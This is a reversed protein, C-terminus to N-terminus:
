RGRWVPARKELFARRGEQTDESQAIMSAAWGENQLKQSLGQHFQDNVLRKTLEITMSPGKALREALALAEPMLENPEVMRNALGWREADRAYIVEGTLMMELARSPGILRPLHFTTGTDPVLGRRIFVSCFGAETSVIRIDAALALSLGGGAAIGNVAAIYPKRYDGLQGFLRGYHQFPEEAVWRYGVRERYEAPDETPSLDAGACFGRGAGTIVLVKTEEDRNTRETVDILDYVLGPSLANLKEPRNLTVVAIGDHSEFILNKYDM